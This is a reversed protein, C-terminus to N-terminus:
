RRRGISQSAQPACAISWRGPSGKQGFAVLSAEALTSKGTGIGGVIAWTEGENITWNLGHLLQPATPRSISANTLKIIPLRTM